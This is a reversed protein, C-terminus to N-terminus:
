LSIEGIKRSLLTLDEIEYHADIVTNEPTRRLIFHVGTGEAASKDSEADGVFVVESRELAYRKLITLIIEAKKAPTGYVEAFYGRMCKAYIIDDLEKQPTGSAIFLRYMKSYMDLCEKAGKVFPAKKIEDLVIQSFKKGLADGIDDSYPEKLIHEYFHQFKEYRSIGMHRLHFSVVEDVKDSWSSFLTRFANTKIQASEVLVGDFDFIIAKIM